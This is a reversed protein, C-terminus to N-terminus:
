NQSTSSNNAECSSISVTVFILTVVSAIVEKWCFTPCCNMVSKFAFMELRNVEVSTTADNLM